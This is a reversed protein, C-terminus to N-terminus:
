RLAECCPCCFYVDAGRVRSFMIVMIVFYATNPKGPRQCPNHSTSWSTECCTSCRLGVYHVLLNWLIHLKPLYFIFLRKVYHVSLDQLICSKSLSFLFVSKSSQADFTLLVSLVGGCSLCVAVRLKVLRSFTSFLTIFYTKSPWLFYTLLFFFASLFFYSVYIM